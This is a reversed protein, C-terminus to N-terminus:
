SGGGSIRRSYVELIGPSIRRLAREGHVSLPIFEQVAGQPSVVAACPFFVGEAIFAFVFVQTGAPLGPATMTFWLGMRSAGPPQEAAPLVSALRRPDGSQELATNVASIMLRDRVPQTFFWALGAILIIGAIWGAFIAADKLPATDKIFFFCKKSM